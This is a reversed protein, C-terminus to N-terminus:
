ATIDSNDDRRLLFEVLTLNIYVLVTAEKQLTYQIPRLNIRM